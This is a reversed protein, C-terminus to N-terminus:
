DVARFLCFTLPLIFQFYASSCWWDPGIQNDTFATRLHHWSDIITPNTSRYAIPKSDPSFYHHSTRLFIVSKIKFDTKLLRLIRHGVGFPLSYLFRHRYSIASRCSLVRWTEQLLCSDISCKKIHCVIAYSLSGNGACLLATGSLYNTVRIDKRTSSYQICGFTWERNRILFKICV